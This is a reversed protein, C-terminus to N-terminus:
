KKRNKLIQGFNFLDYITLHFNKLLMQTLENDVFGVGGVILIKKM